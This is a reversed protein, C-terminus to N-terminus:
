PNRLLEEPSTWTTFVMLGGKVREIAGKLLAREVDTGRCQDIYSEADIVFRISAATKGTQWSFSRPPLAGEKGEM